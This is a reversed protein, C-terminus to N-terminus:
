LWTTSTIEIPSVVVPVLNALAVHHLIVEGGNNFTIKLDASGDRDFDSVKTSKVTTGPNVMLTDVGVQFDLIEDKGGNWLFTDAGAGGVLIDNGADGALRDNGAGGELRDNGAGGLLIDNGDDGFLEDKGAEGILRDAGGGGRLTDNGARGEITENASTGKLDDARGTGILSKSAVSTGELTVRAVASSTGGEANTVTYRFSDSATEGVKLGVSAASSSYALAKTVPDFTIQGLTGTTDVGTIKLGTGGTDNSLLQTYLNAFSADAKVKVSDDRAVPQIAPAPPTVPTTPVTPPVPQTGTSSGPVAPVSPTTGGSVPAPVYVGDKLSLLGNDFFRVFEVDKLVANQHLGANESLSTRGDSLQKVVYDSFSGLVNVVDVGAGGDVAIPSKATGVDNRAVADNWPAADFVTYGGNWQSVTGGAGGVPLAQAFSGGSSPLYTANQLEVGNVTVSHFFTSSSVGSVSAASAFGVKLENISTLTPVSFTYTQTTTFHIGQPTVYGSDIPKLAVQGFDQGNIIVNIVPASGSLLAGTLKITVETELTTELSARKGSEAIRANEAPDYLYLTDDTLGSAMNRQGAAIITEGGFWSSIVQEAPKGFFNYSRSGYDNGLDAPDNNFVYVGKLWSPPNTAWTTFFSQWWDAQEGFDVAAKTGITGDTTTVRDSTGDFSAAGTETFVVPKGVVKAMQDLFAVYDQKNGYVTFNRWAANLDAVTPDNKAALSPYVDFGAFDLKDWFGIQTIENSSSNAMVPALAAYTLQGSYVERISAIIDNWYSTYQPKTAAVMENGISLASAGSKEALKAWELIHTKYSAFFAKPDQIQLDPNVLNIWSAATYRAFAPDNTVLQPKLTVELGAEKAIKVASAVDEMRATQNFGNEIVSTIKSSKLDVYSVNGLVVTNAGSAAVLGVYTKVDDDAYGDISFTSLSIGQVDFSPHNM